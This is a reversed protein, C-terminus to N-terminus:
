LIWVPAMSASLFYELISERLGRGDSRISMEYHMKPATSRHIVSSTAFGLEHLIGIATQVKVILTNQDCTCRAAEPCLNGGRQRRSTGFQHDTAAVGDTQLGRSLLNLLMPAGAMHHLSIQAANVLREPKGILCQLHKASDIDEDVIKRAGNKSACRSTGPIIL